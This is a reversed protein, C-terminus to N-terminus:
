DRCLKMKEACAWVCVCVCVCVSGCYGAHEQFIEESVCYESLHFVPASRPLFRSVRRWATGEGQLEKTSRCNVYFVRPVSLKLQHLDEGVLAWLIFQGHTGTEAVQTHTYTPKVEYIYACSKFLIGADRLKLQWIIQLEDCMRVCARVCVCVCM